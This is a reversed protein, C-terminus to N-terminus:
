PGSDCAVDSVQCNPAEKSCEAKARASAAEKTDGIAWGAWKDTGDMAVAFCKKKFQAVLRCNQDVGSKEAQEECRAKSNTLAERETPYDYGAGYAFGDRLGKSPISVFLAGEAVAAAPLLAIVGCALGLTRMRQMALSGRLVISM